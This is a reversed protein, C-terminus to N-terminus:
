REILNAGELKMVIYKFIDILYKPSSPALQQELSDRPQQPIECMCIWLDTSALKTNTFTLSYDDERPM